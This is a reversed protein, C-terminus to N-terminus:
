AMVEWKVVNQLVDTVEPTAEYREVENLHQGTLHTRAQQMGLANQLVNWCELCFHYRLTWYTIRETSVMARILQPTLKRSAPRPPLHAPRNSGKCRYSDRPEVDHPMLMWKGESRRTQMTKATRGCVHRQFQQYGTGWSTGPPPQYACAFGEHDRRLTRSAMKNMGVRVDSTLVDRLREYLAQCGRRWRPNVEAVSEGAFLAYKVCNRKHEDGEEWPRRAPEWGCEQDSCWPASYQIGVGIDVENYLLAEGCKPCADDPRNSM